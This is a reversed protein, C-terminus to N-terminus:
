SPTPNSPNGFLDFGLFAAIAQHYRKPPTTRHCEWKDIASKFAGVCAAVKLQTLGVDLRCKRLQFAPRHKTHMRNNATRM